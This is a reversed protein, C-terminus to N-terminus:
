FTNGEYGQIVM